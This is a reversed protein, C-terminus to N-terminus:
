WWKRIRENREELERVAEQSPRGLYGGMLRGPVADDPIAVCHGLKGHAVFEEPSACLHVDRQCEACHRVNAADTPALHDWWRPCKFSLLGPCNWLQSYGVDMHIAEFRM